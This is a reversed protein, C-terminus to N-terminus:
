VPFGVLYFIRFLLCCMLPHNPLSYCQSLSFTGDKHTHTYFRKIYVVFRFPKNITIEKWQFAASITYLGYVSCHLHWYFALSLGCFFKRQHYLPFRSFNIMGCRSCFMQYFHSHSNDPKNFNWLSDNLNYYPHTHSDLLCFTLVEVIYCLWFSHQLM